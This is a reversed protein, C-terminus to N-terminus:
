IFISAIPVLYKFYNYTIDLGEDSDIDKILSKEGDLYISYFSEQSLERYYGLELDLRRYAKIFDTLFKVFVKRESYIKMSFLDKFFDIMYEKHLEVLDNDIGKIDVTDNLASYYFEIRNLYLYGLYKNKIRFDLEGFQGQCHKKIVFIADNKVSLIDDDTLDNASFFTKRAEIFGKSLNDSFTKNYKRLMGIEIKRNTKDMKSLYDIKDAPLLGYQKIISFGADKLDYERIDINFLYDIDKNLYTTREYLNTRLGM